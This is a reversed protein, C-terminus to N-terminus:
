NDFQSVSHFREDVYRFHLNPCALPLLGARREFSAHCHRGLISRPWWWSQAWRCIHCCCHPTHSWCTPISWGDRREMSHCLVAGLAQMSRYFVTANRRRWSDSKCDVLVSSCRGCALARQIWQQILSLLGLSALLRWGQRWHVIPPLWEFLAMRLSWTSRGVCKMQEKWENARKTFDFQVKSYHLIRGWLLLCNLDLVVRLRYYLPCANWLEILRWYWLRPELDCRESSHKSWIFRGGDCGCALDGRTHWGESIAKANMSILSWTWRRVVLCWPRGQWGWRSWCPGLCVRSSWIM